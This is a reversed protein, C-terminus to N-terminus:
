RRGKKEEVYRQILYEILNSLSRNEEAALREAAERLDPRIKLGVRQRPGTPSRPARPRPPAPGKASPDPPRAAETADRQFTATLSNRLIRLTKPDARMM